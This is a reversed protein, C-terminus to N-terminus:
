GVMASKTYLKVILVNYLEVTRGGREMRLRKQDTWKARKYARRLRANM